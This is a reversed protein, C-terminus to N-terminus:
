DRITDIAAIVAARQSPYMKNVLNTNDWVEFSGHPFLRGAGYFSRHWNTLAVVGIKEGGVFIEGNPNVTATKGNHNINNKM